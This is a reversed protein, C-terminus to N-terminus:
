AADSITVGGDARFTAVKGAPVGAPISDPLLGLIHPTYTGLLVFVLRAVCHGSADTMGDCIEQTTITQQNGQADTYKDAPFWVNEYLSKVEAANDRLPRTGITQLIRQAGAVVKRGLQTKLSALTPTPVLSVDLISTPISM